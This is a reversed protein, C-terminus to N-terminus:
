ASLMRRALEMAAQAGRYRIEARDGVSQFSRAELREGIAAAVWVLGVPKEKTGGGPGAVGSIGLGIEVAFKSRVGSAMARVTQESVAGHSDLTAQPVGLERRKVENAYAIVGGVFVDSSGPIATLRAGLLGGTCSEAVAVRLKRARSIELLVSALDGDGEAYVWEGVRARLVSSLRGLASESEAVSGETTIRLDVGDVGPLYALSVNAPMEVGTLKDQLLSEAIGTTRLTRSRIVHDSGAGREALLPLLVDHTMGRMERPVGPLMAVWRGNGDELFIGPASGHKNELKRAGQPLLAQRTNSEPMERGFRTRWRTRMWELHEEDVRMQRDFVRAVADRSLDDSTPGLGGTTIVAGTRDLAERVASVIVDMTDGVSTRRVIAVGREALTRALYASNTDVTFGLLLEDGITILEVNM